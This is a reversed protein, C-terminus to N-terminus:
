IPPGLPAENIQMFPKGSLAATNIAALHAQWQMSVFACQQPGMEEGNGDSSCFRAESTYDVLGALAPLVSNQVHYRVLSVVFSSSLAKANSSLELYTNLLVSQCTFLELLATDSYADAAVPSFVAATFNGLVSLLDPLSANQGKGQNLGGQNQDHSQDQNLKHLRQVALREVRAPSLVASLLLHAAGEYAVVPDFSGAGARSAFLDAM